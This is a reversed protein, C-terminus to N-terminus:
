KSAARFQRKTRLQLVVSSFMINCCDNRGFKAGPWVEPLSAAVALFPSQIEFNETM